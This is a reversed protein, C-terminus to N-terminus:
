FHYKVAVQLQFPSNARLGDLNLSGNPLYKTRFTPLPTQATGWLAGVAGVPGQENISSTFVYNGTNWVNFLEAILEVRQGEGFPFQKTVRFDQQHRFGNRLLPIGAIIPRDSLQGDRNSDVGTFATFPAATRWEVVSSLQFGTPLEWVGSLVWRHRIDNRSWRYEPRLDYANEYTIGQFNRENSDDDRNYSLTYTTQFQLRAHRRRLDVIFADFNSRASSELQRLIGFAPNPRVLPNFRPRLVPPMSNDPELVPPALNV